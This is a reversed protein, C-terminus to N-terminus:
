IQHIYLILMLYKYHMISIRYKIMNYKIKHYQYQYQNLLIEGYEKKIKEELEIEYAEKDQANKKSNYKESYINQALKNLLINHQSPIFIRLKCISM